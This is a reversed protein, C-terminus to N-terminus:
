YTMKIQTLAFNIRDLLYFETKNITTIRKLLVSLSVFIVILDIKYNNLEPYHLWYRNNPFIFFLHIKYNRFIFTLFVPFCHMSVKNITEVM